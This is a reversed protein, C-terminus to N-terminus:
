SIVEGEPPGMPEDPNPEAVEGETDIAEVETAIGQVQTLVDDIEEQTVQSAELTEVTTLLEDVQMSLRGLHAQVQAAEDAATSRADQLAATIVDLRGMIEEDGQEISDALVLMTDEISKLQRQKKMRGILRVRRIDFKDNV